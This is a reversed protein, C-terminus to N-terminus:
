HHVTMLVTENVGVGRAVICRNQLRSVVIVVLIFSLLCECIDALFVKEVYSGGILFPQGNKTELFLKKSVPPFQRTLQQYCKNPM